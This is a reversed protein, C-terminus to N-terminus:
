YYITFVNHHLNESPYSRDHECYQLQLIKNVYESDPDEDLLTVEYPTLLRYVSNNAYIKDIKKRSYRIAPYKMRVSAPPDFYVNRSGLLDCLEEHLKLRSAM